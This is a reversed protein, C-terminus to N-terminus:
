RLILWIVVAIVGGIVVLRPISIRSGRAAADIGYVAHQWSTEGCKPCGDNKTKHMACSPCYLSGCKVCRCLQGGSHSMPLGGTRPIYTGSREEGCFECHAKWEVTTTM